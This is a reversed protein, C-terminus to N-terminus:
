EEVIECSPINKVGAIHLFLLVNNYGRYDVTNNERTFIDELFERKKRKSMKCLETVLKDTNNIGEDKFNQEYKPGIYKIRQLSKQPLHKKKEQWSGVGFGRKMCEYSNGKRSYGNPVNNSIGCYFTKIECRKVNFPM